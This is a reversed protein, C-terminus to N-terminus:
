SALMVPASAARPTGISCPSATATRVCPMFNAYEYETAATSVSIAARLRTPNLPIPASLPPASPAVAAERNSIAAARRHFTTFSPLGNVGTKTNPVTMSSLMGWADWM